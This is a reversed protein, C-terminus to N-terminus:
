TRVKLIDRLLVSVMRRFIYIYYQAPTQEAEKLQVVPAEYAQRMIEAPPLAFVVDERAALAGAAEALAAGLLTRCGEQAFGPAQVGDEGLVAQPTRNLALWRKAYETYNLYGYGQAKLQSLLDDFREAYNAMRGVPHDYIVGMGGDACCRKVNEAFCTFVEEETFGYKMWTGVSGCHIPLQLVGSGAPFCPRDDTNFAFESSYLFGHKLLVDSLGPFYFGFPAVFGTPVIGLKKLRRLARRLNVQNTDERRYTMHHYCHLQIDQGEQALRRISTKGRKWGEMDLFWTFSCGANQAISLVRETSEKTYGDADIRVSFCPAEGERFIGNGVVFPLDLCAYARLLIDILLRRLAGYEMCPGIEVFFKDVAPEYFPRRKPEQGFDLRDLDWPLSAFGQGLLVQTGSLPHNARDYLLGYREGEGADAPLGYCQVDALFCRRGLAGEGNFYYGEQPSGGLARHSTIVYKGRAAAGAAEAATIAGCLYVPCGSSLLAEKTEFVSYCLRSQFLMQQLYNGGAVIGVSLNGRYSCDM